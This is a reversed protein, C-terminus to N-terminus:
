NFAREILQWLSIGNNYCNQRMSAFTKGEDSSLVICDIDNNLYNDVIIDKDKYDKILYVKNGDKIDQITNIIQFNVLGKSDLILQILQENM